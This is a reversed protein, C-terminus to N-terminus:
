PNMDDAFSVRLMGSWYDFGKWIFLIAFRTSMRQTSSEYHVPSTSLNNGKLLFMCETTHDSLRFTRVNIPRGVNYGDNNALQVDSLINSAVETEYTPLPTQTRLIPHRRGIM